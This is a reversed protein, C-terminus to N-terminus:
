RWPSQRDFRDFASRFIGDACLHDYDAPWTIWPQSHDRDPQDDTILDHINIGTGSICRFLVYQYRVSHNRLQLDAPVNRDSNHILNRQHKYLRYANKEDCFLALFGPIDLPVSLMITKSAASSGKKVACVTNNAILHTELGIKAIEGILYEAMKDECGSVNFHDAVLNLRDLM